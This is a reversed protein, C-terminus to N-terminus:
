KMERGDNSRMLILKRDRRGERGREREKYRM